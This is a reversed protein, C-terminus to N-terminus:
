IQSLFHGLVCSFHTNYKIDFYRCLCVCKRHASNSEEHIGLFMPISMLITARAKSSALNHGFIHDRHRGNKFVIFDIKAVSIALIVYRVLSYRGSCGQCNSMNKKFWRLLNTKDQGIKNSREWQVGWRQGHFIVGEGGGGEGEGGM